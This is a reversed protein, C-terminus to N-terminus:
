VSFYVSPNVYKGDQVLTAGVRNGPLASENLEFAGEIEEGLVAELFARLSWLSNPKIAFWQKITRGSSDAPEVIEFTVVLNDGDNAKNRQIEADSIMLIYDGEELPNNRQVDSFDLDLPM